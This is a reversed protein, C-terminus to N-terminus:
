DDVVIFDGGNKTLAMERCHSLNKYGEGSDSLPEGNAAERRWRWEDAKDKYLIVKDMTAEQRQRWILEAM